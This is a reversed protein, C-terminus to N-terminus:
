RVQVVQYIKCIWVMAKQLLTQIMLCHHLNDQLMHSQNVGELHDIQKRYVTAGQVDPVDRVVTLLARVPAPLIVTSEVGKACPLVKVIEHLEGRIRAMSVVSFLTFHRSPCATSKPVGHPLCVLSLM